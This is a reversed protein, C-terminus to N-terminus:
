LSFFRSCQLGKLYRCLTLWKPRFPGYLSGVTKLLITEKTWRRGEPDVPEKHGSRTQQLYTPSIISGTWHGLFFVIPCRLSISSKSKLKHVHRFTLSHRLEFYWLHRTTQHHSEPTSIRTTLLKHKLVFEKQLQITRKSRSSHVALPSPRRRRM